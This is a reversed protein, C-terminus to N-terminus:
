FNKEINYNESYTRIASAYLADVDEYGVYIYYNELVSSGECVIRDGYYYDGYPVEVEYIDRIEVRGDNYAIIDSFGVYYYYTLSKLHNTAKVEYVMYIYNEKTNYDREIGDKATLFYCGICEVSDITGEASDDLRSYFTDEGQSKMENLLDDPLQDVSSAYEDLGSVTYEKLDSTLIYGEDYCYEELDYLACARVSVVDGNRLSGYAGAFEFWIDSVPSSDVKDTNIEAYGEGTIGSFEVTIYDFPDFQEREKLGEVEVEFDAYVFTAKVNEELRKSIDWDFEVSDGNSLDDTNGANIKIYKKLDDDDYEVKLSDLDDFLGDYDFSYEVYGDNDYGSFKYDVYDALNIEAKKGCGAFVSVMSIATATCIVIKKTTNKM